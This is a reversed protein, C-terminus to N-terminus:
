TVMIKFALALQQVKAGLEAKEGPELPLLLKLRVCMIIVSRHSLWDLRMSVADRWRGRLILM